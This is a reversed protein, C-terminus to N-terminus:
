AHPRQFIAVLLSWSAGLLAAQKVRRWQASPAAERLPGSAWSMKQWPRKALAPCSPLAFTCSVLLAGDSSRFPVGRRPSIVTQTEFATLCPTPAPPCKNLYLAYWWGAPRQRSSTAVPDKRSRSRATASGDGPAMRLRIPRRGPQGSPNAGPATWGMVPLGQAPQGWPEKLLRRLPQDSNSEPLHPQQRHPRGREWWPTASIRRATSQGGAGCGLGDPCDLSGGQGGGPPGDPRVAPNYSIKLVVKVIGLAAALRAGGAIPAPRM